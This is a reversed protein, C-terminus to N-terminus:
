YLIRLPWLQRSCIEFCYALMPIFTFFYQGGEETMYLEVRIIRVQVTAITDAIEELAEVTPPNPLKPSSLGGGGLGNTNGNNSGGAADRYAAVIGGMADEFAHHDDNSNHNNGNGDSLHGQGAETAVNAWLEQRQQQLNAHHAAAVNHALDALSRGHNQNNELIGGSSKTGDCGAPNGSVNNNQQQQRLRFKENAKSQVQTIQRWIDICGVNDQFSLALDVGQAPNGEELYPECWTIINDGQRQYADRLLIRTRLLIRPNSNANTTANENNSQNISSEQQISSSTHNNRNTAISIESHMCLTPEGLEVYVASDSNPDNLPNSQSNNTNESGNTNENTNNTPASSGSKHDIHQLTPPPKPKYLCLIRGTGCDDWSGDANLRYLKVRWGEPQHHQQQQQQQQSGNNPAIHEKRQSADIKRHSNGLNSTGANANRKDMGASKNKSYSQGKVDSNPGVKSSDGDQTNGCHRNKDNKYKSSNTQITEHQPRRSEPHYDVDSGANVDKHLLGTKSISPGEEDDSSSSSGSLSMTLLKHARSKRTNEEDEDYGFVNLSSGDSGSMPSTTATKTPRKRKRAHQQIPVHLKMRFGPMGTGGEFGNEKIRPRQANVKTESNKARNGNPGSNDAGAATATNRGNEATNTQDTRVVTADQLTM